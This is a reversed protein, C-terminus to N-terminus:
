GCPVSLVSKPQTLPSWVSICVHSIFSFQAPSGSSFAGLVPKIDLTWRPGDATLTQLGRSM